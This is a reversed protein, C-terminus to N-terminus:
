HYDKCQTVFLMRRSVVALLELQREARYDDDHTDGTEPHIIDVKDVENM